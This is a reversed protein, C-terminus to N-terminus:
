HRTDDRLTTYHVPHGLADALDYDSAIVEASLGRGIAAVRDQRNPRSGRDFDFPSIIRYGRFRWDLANKLGPIDGAYEPCSIIIAAALAVRRCLDIFWATQSRTPVTAWTCGALWLM